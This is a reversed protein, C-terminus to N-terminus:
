EVLFVGYLTGSSVQVVNKLNPILTPTSNQAPNRFPDSCLGYGCEFVQGHRTIFTTNDHGCSIQAIDELGPILTPIYRNLNDGLGLQGNANHGCTLVQGQDNLFVTHSYGCAVQIIGTLNPNLTPVHIDEPNEPQGLGLQGYKNQGCVFVRKHKDLFVNHRNSGSIQIIQNLNPIFTNKGQYETVIGFKTHTFDDGCHIVRGNKKLLLTYNKACHVQVIGAIHPIKTFNYRDVTDGLGLQGHDNKGCVFVQGRKNLVASNNDASDVEVIDEINHVITPSKVIANSDDYGLGLNGSINRGCGWVHGHYDLFLTSSSKCSVRVINKLNAVLTPSNVRKVDEGLGIEGLTNSGCVYVKPRSLFAYESRPHTSEDIGYEAKLLNRFVRYDNYNCKDYIYRNTSCLSILHRGRVNNQMLMYMFLDYPMAEFYKVINANGRTSREEEILTDLELLYNWIEEGYGAFEKLNECLTQMTSSESVPLHFIKSMQILEEKTFNKCRECHEEDECTTTYSPDM